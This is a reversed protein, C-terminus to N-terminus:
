KELGSLAVVGNAESTTAETESASVFAHALGLEEVSIPRFAFCSILSELPFIAVKSFAFSDSISKTEPPVSTSNQIYDPLFITVALECTFNLCIVHHQLSCQM